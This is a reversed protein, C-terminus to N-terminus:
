YIGLPAPEGVDRLDGVLSMRGRWLARIVVDRGEASSLHLAHDVEWDDHRFVPQYLLAVRDSKLQRTSWQFGPLTIGRSSCQEDVDCAARWTREYRVATVHRQWGMDERSGPDLVESRYPQDLAIADTDRILRVVAVGFPELLGPPLAVGGGFHPSLDRLIWEWIAAELSWAIGFAGRDTPTGRAGRALTFRGGRSTSAALPGDILRYVHWYRGAPITQFAIRHLLNSASM